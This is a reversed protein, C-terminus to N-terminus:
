AQPPARPLLPVPIVLNGPIQGPHDIVEVAKESCDLSCVLDVIFYFVAEPAVKKKCLLLDQESAAQPSHHKHHHAAEEDDHHHDTVHSGVHYEATALHTSAHAFFCCFLLVSFGAVARRVTNFRSKGWGVRGVM